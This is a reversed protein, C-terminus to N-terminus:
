HGRVHWQVQCGLHLAVMLRETHGYGRQRLVKVARAFQDTSPDRAIWIVPNRAQIDISLLTHGRAVLDEACARATLLSTLLHANLRGAREAAQRTLDVATATM